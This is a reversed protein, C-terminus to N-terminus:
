VERRPDLRDAHGQNSRATQKLNLMSQISVFVRVVYQRSVRHSNLYIKELDVVDPFM